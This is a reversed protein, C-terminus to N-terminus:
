QLVQEMGRGQLHQVAQNSPGGRLSTRHSYGSRRKLRIGGTSPVEDQKCTDSTFPHQPTSATGPTWDTLSAPNESVLAKAWKMGPSEVSQIDQYPSNKKPTATIARYSANGQATTVAVIVVAAMAFTAYVVWKDMLWRIVPVKIDPDDRYDSYKRGQKGTRM